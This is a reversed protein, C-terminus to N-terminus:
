YGKITDENVGLELLNNKIDKVMAPPGCIYFEGSNIESKTLNNKLKDMNIRGFEFGDLEEKSLFNIIKLNIQSTLEKLETKYLYDNKNQYSTILKFELKSLDLVKDKSRFYSIFPTIGTGGSIFIVQKSEPNIARGMPGRIKIPHGKNLEFISSTTNGNKKITFDIKNDNDSSSITIPRFSTADTAILCHQGAKFNFNDPKKVTYTKVFKAEDLIDLIESSFEIM